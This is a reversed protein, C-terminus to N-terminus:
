SRPVWKSVKGVRVREVEVTPGYQTTTSSYMYALRNLEGVPTEVGVWCVALSSYDVHASRTGGKQHCEDARRQGVM